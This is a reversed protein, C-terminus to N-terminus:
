GEGRGAPLEPMAEALAATEAQSLLTRLDHILVLDESRKAVWAVYEVGPVLRKAEEVAAPDLRILEVAQDVRLAVTRKRAWAVIFHDSPELSKAPLRFRSRLDLVPVVSGRLNIVGEVIAPARPLPTIAVARVIELIEASPLGYRQGGIEFVLIECLGPESTANM